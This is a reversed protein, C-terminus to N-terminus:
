ACCISRWRCGIRRRSGRNGAPFPEGCSPRDTTIETVSLKRTMDGLSKRTIAHVPYLLFASDAASAAHRVHSHSGPLRRTRDATGCASKAVAIVTILLLPTTQDTLPLFHGPADRSRPMLLSPPLRLPEWFPYRYPGTDSLAIHVTQKDGNDWRDRNPLLSGASGFSSWAPHAFTRDPERLGVKTTERLAIYAASKMRHVDVRATGAYLM